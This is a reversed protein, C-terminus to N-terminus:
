SEKKFRVTYTWFNGLIGDVKFGLTEGLRATTSSLAYDPDPLFETVALIGEKKLVRKIEALAKKQDPIEFLVTILYVLDISEDEFPLQYASAEHTHINTIDQNEPLSLKKELQTLMAPQIDLAEVIGNKSVARAVFTTYAGSGCGIELVRMGPKIGSREILPAPPQVRRRYDSDLFHGIFAPAPFHLVKRGIRFLIQWIVFIGLIWLIIKLVTPLVM